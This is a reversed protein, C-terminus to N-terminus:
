WIVKYGVEISVDYPRDAGVGFSPMIYASHGKTGFYKDTMMGAQLELNMFEKDNEYDLIIQPDIYGWYQNGDWTKVIFIDILGQHVQPRGDDEDISIKHQYGPVIISGPGLPNFFGLFILPALTWAGTGLADESATNLFFEVGKGQDPTGGPVGIDTLAVQWVDIISGFLYGKKDMAPQEYVVPGDYLELHVTAYVTENNFTSMTVTHDAFGGIYTVDLLRGCRCSADSRNHLVDNQLTVNQM